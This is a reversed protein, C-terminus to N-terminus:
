GCPVLSGATGGLKACFRGSIAMVPRLRGGRLMTAELPRQQPHDGVDRGDPIGGMEPERQPMLRARGADDRKMDNKHYGTKIPKYLPSIFFTFRPTCAHRKM